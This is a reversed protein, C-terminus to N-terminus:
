PVKEFAPKLRTTQYPLVLPVDRILECTINIALSGGKLLHQFKPISDCYVIHNKKKLLVFLLCLLGQHRITM